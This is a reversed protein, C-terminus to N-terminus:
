SFENELAHKVLEMVQNRVVDALDFPDILHNRVVAEGLCVKQRQAKSILTEVAKPDVCEEKILFQGLRYSGLNSSAAEIRGERYFLSITDKDRALTLVGSKKADYVQRIEDLSPQVNMM